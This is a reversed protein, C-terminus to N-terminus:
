QICVKYHSAVYISVLRRLFLEAGRHYSFLTDRNVYVLECQSPAVCEYSTRTVDSVDLCLLDTLWREIADNSRYRISESLTLEYLSRGALSLQCPSLFTCLNGHFHLSSYLSYFSSSCM